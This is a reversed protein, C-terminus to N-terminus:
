SSHEARWECLERARSIPFALITFTALWLVLYQLIYPELITKIGNAYSERWLQQSGSMISLMLLARWSSGARRFVWFLSAALVLVPLFFLPGYAIMSDALFPMGGVPSLSEPNDDATFLNRNYFRESWAVKDGAFRPILYVAVGIPLGPQYTPHALNTTAMMLPLTNFYSEAALFVVYDFWDGTGEKNSSRSFGIHTAIAYVTAAILVGVM